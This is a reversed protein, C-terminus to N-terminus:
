RYFPPLSMIVAEPTSHFSILHGPTWVDPVYCTSRRGKAGRVSSPLTWVVGCGQRRKIRRRGVLACIIIKPLARDLM